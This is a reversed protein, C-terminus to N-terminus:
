SSKFSNKKRYPHRTVNGCELCKVIVSKQPASTRVRCNKGPVLYKHCKKCVKRKLSKPMRINYRMAIKRALQVYRDSREPHKKFESSALDFLIRIRESGIRKQWIQKRDPRRM